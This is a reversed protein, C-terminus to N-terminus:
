GAEGGFSVKVEGLGSIRATFVDGPAAPVM